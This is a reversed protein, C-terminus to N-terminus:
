KWLFNDLLTAITSFYNSKLCPPLQLDSRVTRAQKGASQAVTGANSKMQSTRAAGTFLHRRMGQHTRATDYAHTAHM